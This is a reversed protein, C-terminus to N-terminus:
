HGYGVAGDPGPCCCTEISGVGGCGTFQPEALVSTDFGTILGSCSNSPDQPDPDDLWGYPYCSSIPAFKWILQWNNCFGTFESIDNAGNKSIISLNNPVRRRIENWSSKYCPYNFRIEGLTGNGRIFAPVKGTSSLPVIPHTPVNNVFEFFPATHDFRVGSYKQYGSNLDYRFEYGSATSPSVQFSGYGYLLAGGPGARDWGYPVGSERWLRSWIESRTRVDLITHPTGYYGISTSELLSKSRLNVLERLTWKYNYRGKWNFVQQGYTSGSLWHLCNDWGLRRKDRDLTLGSYRNANENPSYISAKRYGYLDDYQSGGLFDSRLLSGEVDNEEAGATFWRKGGSRPLGGEDFPLDFDINSQYFMPEIDKGLWETNHYWEGINENKYIFDSQIPHRPSVQRCNKGNSDCGCKTCKKPGPGLFVPKGAIDTWLEPHEDRPFDVSRDTCSSQLGKRCYCRILSNSSINTLHESTSSYPNYDAYISSLEIWPNIIGCTLGGTFTWNSRFGYSDPVTRSGFVGYPSSAVAPTDVADIINDVGGESPASCPTPPGYQHAYRVTGGNYIGWGPGHNILYNKCTQNPGLPLNNISPYRGKSVEIAAEYPSGSGIPGGGFGCTITSSYSSDNILKNTSNIYQRCAYDSFGYECCNSDYNCCCRQAFNKFYPSM